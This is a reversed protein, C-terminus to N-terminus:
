SIQASPIRSGWLCLHTARVIAISMRANVFGCVQSYQKGTKKALRASLKKLLTKAEKGILGDTSVVFLTFHCQQELCPELYKKKKEREHTELVKMPDKTHYSKADIDTIHVDIICDTGNAWISCILVDGRDENQNKHLNCSVPSSSQEAANQEM